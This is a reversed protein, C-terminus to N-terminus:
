RPSHRAVLGSERLYSLAVERPSERDVDVRANLEQMVEDTLGPQVNEIM